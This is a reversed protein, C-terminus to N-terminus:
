IVKQYVVHSSFLLSVHDSMPPASSSRQLMAGTFAHDVDKRGDDGGPAAGWGRVSASGSAGSSTGSAGTVVAAGALFAAANSTGGDTGIASVGDAKTGPPDVDFGPSRSRGSPLGGNSTGFGVQVHSSKM